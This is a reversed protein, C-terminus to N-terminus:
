VISSGIIEMDHPISTDNMNTIITIKYINYKLRPM